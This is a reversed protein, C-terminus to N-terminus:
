FSDLSWPCGSSPESGLVAMSFLTMWAISMFGGSDRDM